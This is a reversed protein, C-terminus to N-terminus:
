LSGNRRWWVHWKCLKLFPRTEQGVQISYVEAYSLDGQLNGLTM